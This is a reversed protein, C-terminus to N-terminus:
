NAAVTGPRLYRELFAHVFEPVTQGEYEADWAGHKAGELPHFVHLVGARECAAKLSLAASFYVGIHQDKTGHAILIPPDGADVQDIVLEASGWLEVIADPRSSVGPHNEAPVPLDPGDATFRDESTLGALLAAIAGASDGCLAIRQPDVGYDASRARVFRVAAKTDVAAAHVARQISTLHFPPPAPPHDPLLRYDAAFCVYGREALYRALGSLDDHDKTGEKFSGGHLLIVAPAPHVAPTDPRYVDLLLPRLTFQTAEAEAAVRGVAYLV